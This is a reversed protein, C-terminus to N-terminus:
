KGLVYQEDEANEHGAVQDYHKGELGHRAVILFKGYRVEGAHAQLFCPYQGVSASPKLISTVSETYILPISRPTM